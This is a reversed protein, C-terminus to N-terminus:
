TEIRKDAVSVEDAATRWPTTGPRDEPGRSTPQQPRTGGEVVLPAPAPMIGVDTFADILGPYVTLGKGDIVWAEDPIPADKAVTKLVGRAIIITANETSHGRM